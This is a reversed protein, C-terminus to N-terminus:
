ENLEEKIDMLQVIVILLLLILAPSGGTVIGLISAIAAIGFTLRDYNEKIWEIM